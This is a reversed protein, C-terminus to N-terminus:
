SAFGIGAGAIAGTIVGTAWRQVAISWSYTSFEDFSKWNRFAQFDVAAAALFGSFAGFAISSLM